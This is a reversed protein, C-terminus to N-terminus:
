DTRAKGNDGQAGLDAVGKHKPYCANFLSRKAQSRARIGNLGHDLCNTKVLERTANDYREQLEALAFRPVIPSIKSALQHGSAAKYAQLFAQWPPILARDHGDPGHHSDHGSSAGAFPVMASYSAGAMVDDDSSRGNSDEQSSGGSSTNGESNGSSDHM